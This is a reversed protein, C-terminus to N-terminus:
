KKRYNLMSFIATIVSAVTIIVVVIKTTTIYKNVEQGTTTSWFSM